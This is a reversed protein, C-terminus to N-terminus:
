HKQTNMQLLSPKVANAIGSVAASIDRTLISKMALVRALSHVLGWIVWLVASIKLLNKM